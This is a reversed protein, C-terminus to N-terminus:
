WVSFINSSSFMGASLELYPKSIKRNQKVQQESGSISEVGYLSKRNEHQPKMSSISFLNSKEREHLLEYHLLFNILEKSTFPSPLLKIQNKQTMVTVFHKWQEDHAHRIDIIIAFLNQM